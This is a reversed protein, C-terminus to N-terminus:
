RSLAGLRKWYEENRHQNLLAVERHKDLYKVIGGIHLNRKCNRYVSEMVEADELYDLSLRYPRDYNFELINAGKTVYAGWGTDGSFGATEINERPYAIVNLGFPLGDTRVAKKFQLESAVYYVANITEPCVLWDDGDANVIFDVCNKAACDRQRKIINNEDGAFFGIGNRAAIPKLHTVNDPCDGTCLIIPLNAKKLRGILVDTVTQGDIELLCKGLLRTSGYRVTLFIATTM